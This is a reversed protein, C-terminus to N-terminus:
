ALGERWAPWSQVCQALEAYGRARPHAGDNRRVEDLWVGSRSLVEFVPLYAVGREAALAALGM